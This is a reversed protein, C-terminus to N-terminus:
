VLPSRPRLPQDAADLCTAGHQQGALGIGQVAALANPHNAKLAALANFAAAVWQAPDQESWSPHPRSVTLPADASAILSGDWDILVAKLESTDLDLGLCM